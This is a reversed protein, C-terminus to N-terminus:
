IQPVVHGTPITVDGSTPVLHGACQIPWHWFRQASRSPLGCAGDLGYEVWILAISTSNITPQDKGFSRLLSTWPNHECREHHCWESAHDDKMKNGHCPGTQGPECMQDKSPSISASPTKGDKSGLEIDPQTGKKPNTAKAKSKSSSSMETDKNDKNMAHIAKHQDKEKVNVPKWFAKYRKSQSCDGSAAESAQEGGCGTGSGGNEETEILMAEVLSEISYCHSFTTYTDWITYQKIADHADKCIQDSCLLQLMCNGATDDAFVQIPVELDLQVDVNPKDYIDDWWKWQSVGHIECYLRVLPVFTGDMQKIFKTQMSTLGTLDLGNFDPRRSPATFKKAKLKERYANIHDAFNKMLSKELLDKSTKVKTLALDNNEKWVRLGRLHNLSQMKWASNTMRAVPIQKTTTIWLPDSSRIILGSQIWAIRNFMYKALPVLNSNKAAATKNAKEGCYRDMALWYKNMETDYYKHKGQAKLYYDNLLLFTENSNELKKSRLDKQIHKVMLVKQSEVITNPLHVSM